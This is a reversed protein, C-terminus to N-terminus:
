GGGKRRVGSTANVGGLGVACRADCFKSIKPVSTACLVNLVKSEVRVTGQAFLRDRGPSVGAWTATGQAPGSPPPTTLM